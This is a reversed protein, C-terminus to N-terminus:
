VGLNLYTSNKLMLLQTKRSDLLILLQLLLPSLLLLLPSLLLLLRGSQGNQGNLAKVAAATVAAATVAAATVAAATM